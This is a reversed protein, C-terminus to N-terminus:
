EDELGDFLAEFSLTENRRIMTAIPEYSRRHIECLGHDYLAKQHAQTGYGVNKEFGYVPFRRSEEAMIRDRSVKALVSAMSVCPVKLDAKPLSVAGSVGIDLAGDVIVLPEAGGSLAKARAIMRQTSEAHMRCLVSRVGERDIEESSAFLVCWSVTAAPNEPYPKQSTFERFVRKLTNKTMAKSDTLGKPGIWGRPVTVSAVCLPGAWAGYGVEDSGVVFPATNTDLQACGTLM